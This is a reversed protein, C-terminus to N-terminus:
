QLLDRWYVRKIPRPETDGDYLLPLTSDSPSPDIVITQGNGKDFIYTVTGATGETDKDGTYTVYPKGKLNNDKNWVALRYGHRGKGKHKGHRHPTNDAVENDASDVRADLRYTRGVVSDNFCFEPTWGDRISSDLSRLEDNVLSDRQQKEARSLYAVDYVGGEVWLYQGNDLSWGRWGNENWRDPRANKIINRLSDDVMVKYYSSMQEPTEIDRLPYPRQLPYSVLKSFGDSDNDAVVRVVQKVEDPISDSAEIEAVPSAASRNHNCGTLPAAAM